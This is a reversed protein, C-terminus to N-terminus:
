SWDVETAVIRVALESQKGLEDLVEVEEPYGPLFVVYHSTGFRDVLTLLSTSGADSTGPRGKELFDRLTKAKTSDSDGVDVTFDFLKAKTPRLLGYVAFFKVIPTVTSTASALQIMFRIKKFSITSLDAYKKLGMVTASTYTTDVDVWSGSADIEYYVKVYVTASMTGSCEILVGQFVKNWDRNGVDQWGTIIYGSAAFRATTDNTPNDSINIYCLATDSGFWLRRPNQLDDYYCANCLQVGPYAIPHWRWEDESDPCGKYIYFASNHVMAYVNWPDSAMPGVYRYGYASVETDDLKDYPGIRDMTLSPGIECMSTAANFYVGSQYNTHYKFPTSIGSEADADLLLHVRGDEDLHYLNGNARGILLQENLLMMGTIAGKSADGIYNPDTWQIVAGTGDTNSKVINGEDAKWLIETTKTPSPAVIFYNARKDTLGSATYIASDTTYYYDVSPGQAIFLYLGFACLDTISTGVFRERWCTYTSDWQLVGTAHAAFIKNDFLCFKIIGTAPIGIPMTSSSVWVENFLPPTPMATWVTIQFKVWHATVGSITHEEWAAGPDDFTVRHLGAASVFVGSGSWAVGDVKVNSLSIFSAAAASYLPTITCATFVGQTGVYIDVSTFHAVNTGVLFADGDAVPDPSVAFPIVDNVTGTKSEALYATYAGADKQFVGTAFRAGYTTNIAPGLILQRGLSTDVSRGECYKNGTDYTATYRKKAYGNVNGEGMGGSWDHQEWRLDYTAPEAGRNAETVHWLKRRDQKKLLLGKSLGDVFVTITGPPTGTTTISTTGAALTIPSSTVSIVAGSKVHGNCGTPLVVNFKGATTVTVTNPGEVLTIPSGTAVGTDNTLTATGISLKIDYNKAM